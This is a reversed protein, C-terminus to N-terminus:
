KSSLAVVADSYQMMALVIDNYTKGVMGKACGEVSCKIDGSLKEGTTKDYFAIVFESRMQSPKISFVPAVFDGSDNFASAPIPEQEEGNITYRVEVDYGSLSAKAVPLTLKVVSGLNLSALHGGSVGGLRTTFCHPVSIQSGTLYVLDGNTNTILSM